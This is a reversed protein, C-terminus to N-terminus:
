LFFISINGKEIGTDTFHALILVPSIFKTATILIVSFINYVCKGQIFVICTSKTVNRLKAYYPFIWFSPPCFFNDKKTFYM